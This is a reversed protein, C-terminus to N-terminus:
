NRRALFYCYQFDHPLYRINIDSFGAQELMLQLKECGIAAGHDDGNNSLSVALCHLCSISYILTSAAHDINNELFSSVSYDQLLFVGDAKLATHINELAAQPRAINHIADFATIFDYREIETFNTVDKKGYNPHRTYLHIVIALNYKKAKKFVSVLKQLHKENRLDLDSNAM